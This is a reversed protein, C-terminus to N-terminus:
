FPCAPVWGAGTLSTTTTTTSGAPCGVGIGPTTGPAVPPCPVIGPTTLTICGVVCCQTTKTEISTNTQDCYQYTPPPAPNFRARTRRQVVTRTETWTLCTSWCEPVLVNFETVCGYVPPAWPTTPKPPLTVIEVAVAGIGCGASGSAIWANMSRKVMTEADGKLTENMASAMGDLKANTECGDGQEVPVDAAKYGASALFEILGDRDPSGAVLAVLPDDALVGQVYGKAPGATGTANGVSAVEWRDDDSDPINL